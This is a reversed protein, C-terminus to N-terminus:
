TGVADRAGTEQCWSQGKAFSGRTGTEQGEGTKQGESQDKSFGASKLGLGQDKAVGARTSTEQGM